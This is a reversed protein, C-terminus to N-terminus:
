GRRPVLDNPDISIDLRECQSRLAPLELVGARHCRVVFRYFADCLDRRAQLRQTDPIRKPRDAPGRICPDDLAFNITEHDKVYAGQGAALRNFRTHYEDIVKLCHVVEDSWFDLNQM